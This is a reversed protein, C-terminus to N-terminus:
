KKEGDKPLQKYLKYLEDIMYKVDTLEVTGNTALFEIDFPLKKKLPKLAELLQMIQKEDGDIIKIHVLKTDKAM